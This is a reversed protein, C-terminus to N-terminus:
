IRRMQVRLNARTYGRSAKQRAENVGVMYKSTNIPAFKPNSYAKGPTMQLRAVAGAAIPEVWQEYFLDDCTTSSRLPALAIRLTVANVLSKEPIPFLSFTNTDKQLYTRPTAYQTQYNGVRQNYVTPDRIEDPASPDLEAGSYWLKMIKIIRTGTVPTELDYDPVKAVASVPDHDVQHILTREAFEIVTDKIAQTALLESCGTVEPLVRSLFDDYSAM